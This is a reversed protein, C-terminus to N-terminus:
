CFATSKRAPPMPILRYRKSVGPKYNGPSDAQVDFPPSNWEFGHDFDPDPRFGNYDSTSYNTFTTVALVPMGRSISPTGGRGGGGAGYVGQALFLNNLLHANGMPGGRCEGVFTNQLVYIGSVPSFKCSGFTPTNYVINQFFYVPGGWVPQASLAGGPSNFCRNRFVRINHAGGDSEICNDGM